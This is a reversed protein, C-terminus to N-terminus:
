GNGRDKFLPRLYFIDWPTWHCLGGLIVLVFSTAKIPFIHISRNGRQNGQAHQHALHAGPQSRWARFCVSYTPQTPNAGLMLPQLAQGHSNSTHLSRSQWRGGGGRGCTPAAKSSHWHQSLGDMPHPMAPAVM